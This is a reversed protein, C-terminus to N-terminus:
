GGQVEVMNLPTHQPKLLPSIVGVRVRYDYPQSALMDLPSSPVQWDSEIGYSRANLPLGSVGHFRWIRVKGLPVQVQIM